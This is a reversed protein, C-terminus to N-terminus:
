KKNILLYYYILISISYKFIIFFDSKCADMVM